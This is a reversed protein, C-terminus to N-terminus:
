WANCRSDRECSKMPPLVGVLRTAVNLIRHGAGTAKLHTEFQERAMGPGCIVVPMEVSIAKSAQEAVKVLFEKRVEASKAERKGGGRFHLPTEGLNVCGMSPSKLSCSKTVKSWQLPSAVEAVKKSLNLWYIKIPKPYGEWGHFKLKMAPGVAHTHHSGKDMKAECIIGHIRLNDTFPQFETTEADLVIWMPKRDASKARGSAETGTSQDRRFGM